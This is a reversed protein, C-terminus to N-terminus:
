NDKPRSEISKSIMLFSAKYKDFNVLSATGRLKFIQGNKIFYFLYSRFEMNNLKSDFIAWKAKSGGVTENGTEIVKFGPENLPYSHNLVNDFHQELDLKDSELYTITFNEYENMRPAFLFLNYKDDYIGWGKPLIYSLVIEPDEVFQRKQGLATSQFILILILTSILKM